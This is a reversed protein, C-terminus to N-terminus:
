SIRIAQLEPLWGLTQIYRIKSASMVRGQFLNCEIMQFITRESKSVEFRACSIGTLARNIPSKSDMGIVSDFGGCMGIDSVYLSGDQIMLDDTGIHTHTGCMMSVKGKLMEFLTRKESTAEAHIDIFINEIGEEQLAQIENKACLFVNNCHPMGFHGMLNLVAVKEGCIEGVFLGKGPLESSYNQPRLVRHQESQFFAFIEKKDFSHNGGTIVDVGGQLLMEIHPISMGFGHSINEGNAIVFDLQHEKRIRPLLELVLNRASKGVIDGIVGIKM